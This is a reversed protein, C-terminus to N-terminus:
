DQVGKGLDSLASINQLAITKQEPSIASKSVQRELNKEITALAKGLQSENVDVLNVKFGNQAFVHAIGNGMTGAGIVAVRSLSGPLPNPLEDIDMPSNM